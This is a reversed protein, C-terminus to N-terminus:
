RSTQIEIVQMKYCSSKNLHSLLTMRYRLLICDADSRLQNRYAHSLTVLYEFKKTAAQPGLFRMHSNAQMIHILDASGLM